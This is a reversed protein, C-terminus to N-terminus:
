EASQSHQMEDRLTALARKLLGAVAVRTRGMHEAIQSLQWGHWHQLIL